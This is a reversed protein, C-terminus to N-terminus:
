AATEADTAGPLFVDSDPRRLRQGKGPIIGAQTAIGYEFSLAIRRAREIFHRAALPPCTEAATQEFLQLWRDFHRGDVPLPLHKMMPSGSYRGSMLAVSSWFDCMTALHAGWDGVRKAFIPGLLADARIKAYFAHVLRAIMADDVGTERVIEAVNLARREEATLGANQENQYEVHLM